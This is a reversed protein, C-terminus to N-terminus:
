NDFFFVLRANNKGYIKELVDLTAAVAEWEDGNGDGSENAKVMAKRFEDPYLWSHTHGDGDSRQIWYKTGRDADTPIGRPKVVANKEEGRVGAMAEYLRYHRGEPIDLAWTEWDAPAHKWRGRVEITLHSNCGM